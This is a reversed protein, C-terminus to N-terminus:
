ASEIRFGAWQLERQLLASSKEEQYGLEAYGWITKSIASFHAAHQDVTQLIQQHSAAEQALAPLSFLAAWAIRRVRRSLASRSSFRM